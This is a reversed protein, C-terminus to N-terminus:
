CEEKGCEKIIKDIEASFSSSISDFEKKVKRVQRAKKIYRIIDKIADLLFNFLYCAGGLLACCVLNYDFDSM